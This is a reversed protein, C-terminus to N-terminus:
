SVKSGFAKEDFFNKHEALLLLGLPLDDFLAFEEALPKFNEKEDKTLCHYFLVLLETGSMQARMINLYMQKDEVESIKIFKFLSYLSRFYPELVSRHYSMLHDWSNWILEEEDRIPVKHKKYRSNFLNYFQDFINVEELFSEPTPSRMSRVIENHLRVMQFFTSEFNQKKLTTNQNKIEERTLRLEERQLKLEKNQLFVTFIIGAFALGSFLSTLLGFSDGFVGAKDVNGFNVPWSVYLVFAGYGLVMLCIVCAALIGKTLDSM